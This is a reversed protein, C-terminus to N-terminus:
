IKFLDVYSTIQGSKYKYTLSSMTVLWLLITVTYIITSFQSYNKRFDYVPEILKCTICEDEDIKGYVRRKLYREIITLVCTNDNCIWHIIIFPIFVSHLMLFYNSGSFPAVIVFIVFLIHLLSVIKLILDIM